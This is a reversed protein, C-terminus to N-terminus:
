NLSKDTIRKALDDVTTARHEYEISGDDAVAIIRFKTNKVTSMLLRVTTEATELGVVISESMTM